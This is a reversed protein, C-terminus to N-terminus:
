PIEVEAHALIRPDSGETAQPLSVETARWGGHRLTGKYPPKGSLNGTLKIETPDFDEKIDIESGDASDFIRTIDLREKLAKACSSHISRVAAGVQADDYSSIDESIFDVFRAEEQLLNLLRLAGASSPDLPAEEEAAAEDDSHDASSGVPTSKKRSFLSAILAFVVPALGLFLTGRPYSEYQQRVIDVVPQWLRQSVADTIVKAPEAQSMILAALNAVGLILGLLILLIVIAASGRQNRLM